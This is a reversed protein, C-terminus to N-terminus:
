VESDSDSEFGLSKMKWLNQPHFVLKCLEEAVSKKFYERCEIEYEDIFIVPNWRLEDWDVNDLNTELIHIVAPCRNWSLARWCVKDLNKELLPMVLPSLNASLSTWCLKDLNREMLSIHSFTLNPYRCFESWNIDEELSHPVYTNKVPVYPKFEISDQNKIRSKVWKRLVYKCQSPSNLM